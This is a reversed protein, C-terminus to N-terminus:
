LLSVLFVAKFLALTEELQDSILYNKNRLRQPMWDDNMTRFRSNSTEVIEDDNFSSLQKNLDNVERQAALTNEVTPVDGCTETFIRQEVASSICPVSSLAPGSNGGAKTTLAPSARSKTCNLERRPPSNAM